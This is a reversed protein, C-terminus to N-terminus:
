DNNMSRKWMIYGYLTNGLFLVYQLAVLPLGTTAYTYIAFINVIAWLLWNELKKNDLLFQAIITGILIVSDTWAMTGGLQASLLSAGGYGVLSVVVYIPIMKIRVHTVPLTQEDKRWRIWGYILTPVLYANLVASALLGSQLFLLAYAASSIVGIPYNIRRERVCLYTCSYSTFVAFVELWNITSLTIWGAWGGILYSAATLGVAIVVSEVVNRAQGTRTKNSTHSM